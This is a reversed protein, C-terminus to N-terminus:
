VNRTHQRVVFTVIIRCICQLQSVPNTNMLHLLFLFKQWTRGNCHHMRLDIYARELANVHVKTYIRGRNVNSSPCLYVKFVKLKLFVIIISFHCFLLFIYSSKLRMKTHGEKVVKFIIGSHLSPPVTKNFHPKVNANL